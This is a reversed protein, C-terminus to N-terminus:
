AQLEAKSNFCDCACCNMVVSYTAVQSNCIQTECTECILCMIKKQLAVKLLKRCLIKHILKNTKKWTPLFPVTCVADFMETWLINHILFYMKKGWLFAFFSPITHPNKVKSYQHCIKYEYYETDLMLIQKLCVSSFQVFNKHATFKRPKTVKCFSTTTASNKSLLCTNNHLPFSAEASCCFKFHSCGATEM